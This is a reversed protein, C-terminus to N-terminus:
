TMSNNLVDFPSSSGPQLPVSFGAAHTHGGGGFTTAIAAVDAGDSQSRLSFYRRGDKDHWIVCFRALPYERSLREGIQSTLVGSQVVPVTEGFFPLMVAHDSIKAVTENEYRLIATGELELVDQQFGDWTKFDFPYSNLAANIERSM